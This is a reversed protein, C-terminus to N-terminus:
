SEGGRTRNTSYATGRNEDRPYLKRKSLLVLQEHQQSAIMNRDLLRTSAAVGVGVDALRGDDAHLDSLTQAIAAHAAFLCPTSYIAVDVGLESLSLRPSVGGAILNFLLRKAGVQERVKTILDTSRVGDVLVVDADTAALEAARRLMEPEDVADTRAVVWLDTRAALVTDLKQNSDLHSNENQSGQGPRVGATRNPIRVAPRDCPAPIRHAGRVPERPSRHVLRCVLLRTGSHLRADPLTELPLPQHTMQAGPEGM